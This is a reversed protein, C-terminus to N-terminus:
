RASGNTTPFAIVFKTWQKPVSEVQIIGNLLEVAEKVIYLGLGSGKANETARYFMNFVKDIREAEIGIGNDTIELNWVQSNRNFRLDVHSIKKRPDHYKIANSILNALIIKLRQPNSIVQANEIALNFKINSTEPIYKLEDLVEQILINLDTPQWTLETNTCISHEMLTQIIAELKRVSTEMYNFYVIHHNVDERRALDILGLISKLPAVLDHSASYLFADLEKITKNLQSITVNLKETRQQVVRELSQNAEKLEQHAKNLEENQSALTKNKLNIELHQAGVIKELAVKLKKLRVTRYLFLSYIIGLIILLASARAYWTSWWPPVVTIDLVTEDGWVGSPYGAKIRLKYEGPLINTFFVKKNALAHWSNEFGDLMYQYQLSAPAIYQLASFEFSIFKAQEHTLTIHKTETISKDLINDDIKVEDNFLQFGTLTVNLGEKQYNVKSPQFATFGNNGGFLLHGDATSFAANDKFPGTDVGYDEDFVQFRNLKPDFQGLGKNCTFWVNGEKDCRVGFILNNPLGDEETMTNFKETKTNFQTLGGGFTGFWIVGKNLPDGQISLIQSNPLDYQKTEADYRKTKGTNLEYSLLLGYFGAFLNQNSDIWLSEVFENTFVDANDSPLKNKFNKFENTRPDFRNLGFETALWIFGAADEAMDWVIDSGISVSNQLNQKYQIVKKDTTIRYLGQQYTGVFFDGQKTKHMCLIAEPDEVNKPFKFNAFIGDKLYALGGRDTGIWLVDGDEYFSSVANHPLSSSNLPDKKFSLFNIDLHPKYSVGGNYTGLWVDGTPEILMSRVTNGSITRDNYISHRYHYSTRTQPNLITLGGGDTGVWIEGNLFDLSWVKDDSLLGDRRSYTLTEGTETNLQILGDGETGIWLTSGDAMLTRIAYQKNGNISTLRVQEIKNTILDLSFLGNELTGLYLKNKIKEISSVNLGSLEEIPLRYLKKTQIDVSAVGDLGAAVWLVKKEEDIKLDPCSFYKKGNLRFAQFKERHRDFLNLGETTGIWINGYEDERLSRVTNDVISASDDPLNRFIKFQNGDFRNLGDDTGFWMFGKSDRLICNVSAQSLGDKTNFRKFFHNDSFSGFQAWSYGSSFMCIGAILVRVVRM